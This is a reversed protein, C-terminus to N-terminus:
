REQSLAHGAALAHGIGALVDGHEAHVPIAAHRLEEAHRLLIDNRRARGRKIVRRHDLEEGDAGMAHLAAADRACSLTSTTPAPGM